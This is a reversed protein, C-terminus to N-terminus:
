EAPERTLTQWALLALPLFVAGTIATAAGLRLLAYGAALAGLAYGADRISRYIGLATAREAAPARDAVVAILVPYVMSTGLGLLVAAVLAPLLSAASALSLLGVGQMLMGLAVLPRRGIRDSLPGFLPQGGAWVLPYLGAVSGIAALGLGRDELLLPLSLWVFGDKLNTALGLLIPVGLGPVWRLPVLVSGEGTEETALSLLLGIIAAAGGIVFPWPRLGVSAAVLGTAFAALSVGLYGAFENMGAAFGRREPPVLDVMMNLTMSWTLAQGVGLLLNAVVVTNWDPAWALLPAVPLSVLWGAILVRKRGLRDAVAGAFLNVVAKSLSFAIIFAAVTAGAGLRLEEEAVLPVVTRELGVMAGVFLNILALLWFARGWAM